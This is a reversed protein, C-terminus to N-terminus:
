QSVRSESVSVSICNWPTCQYQLRVRDVPEFIEILNENNKWRHTRERFIGRTSTRSHMSLIGHSQHKGPFVQGGDGDRVDTGIM